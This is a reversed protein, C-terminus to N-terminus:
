YASKYTNKTVDPDKVRAQSLMLSGQCLSVSQFTMYM